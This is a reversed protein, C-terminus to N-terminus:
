EHGLGRAKLTMAHDNKKGVFKVLPIDINATANQTTAHVSIKGHAVDDETTKYVATCIAEYGASLLGVECVPYEHLNNTLVVNEAESPGPNQITYTIPVYEGSASFSDADIGIQLNDAGAAADDDDPPLELPSKTLKAARHIAGDLTVPVPCNVVHPSFTAEFDYDNLGINTPPFENVELKGGARLVKVRQLSKVVEPVEDTLWHAFGIHWM